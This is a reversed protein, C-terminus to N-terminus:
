AGGSAEGLPLEARLWAVEEHLGTAEHRTAREGTSGDRRHGLLMPVRMALLIAVCAPVPVYILLSKLM